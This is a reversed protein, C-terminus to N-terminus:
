KSTARIIIVIVMGFIVLLLLLMCLCKRSTAQHKSAEILQAVAEKTEYDAQEINYDIRDLITGQDVVLTALDKFIEALEHISKAIQEIEKERLQVNRQTAQMIGKQNDNFGVDLQIDDDEEEGQGIGLTRSKEQRGRMTNLYEKQNGRFQLSMDQLKTALKSKINRLILDEQPNLVDGAGINKVRDRCMTFMSTIKSTLIEIDREEKSRDDHDTIGPLLHKKHM